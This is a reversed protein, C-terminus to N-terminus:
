EKVAWVEWLSVCPFRRLANGKWSKAPELGASGEWFISFPFRGGESRWSQVKSRRRPSQVKSITWGSGESGLAFRFPFPAVWQRDLVQSRYLGAIGEWFFSFPFRGFARGGTRFG